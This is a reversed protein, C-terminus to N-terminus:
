NEGKEIEKYMRRESKENLVFGGRARSVAGFAFVFTSVFLFARFRRMLSILPIYECEKM